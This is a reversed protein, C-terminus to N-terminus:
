KKALDILSQTSIDKNRISHENHIKLLRDREDRLSHNEQELRTCKSKLERFDKIQSTYDEKESLWNMVKRLLADAIDDATVTPPQKYKTTQISSTGTIRSGGHKWRMHRAMSGKRTDTIMKGCIPCPKVQEQATM